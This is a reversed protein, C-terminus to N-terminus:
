SAEEIRVRMGPQLRENGRVVVLEGARLGDLVEYRAGVAEGVLLQRPEATGDIVVFVIVDDPRRIIADKHVSVIQRPAGVPIQLTVSQENALAAGSAAFQPVFRVARTRTLPNEDPVIARVSATFATGDDLRGALETGPTLGLLRNSPVDAEVELSQDAIMEVLADGERAYAGAESLRRSVVGDYPAKVQTYDLNIQALRLRARESTMSAEAERAGAEAIAVQQRVDDFRAQSFAASKKLGEIRQLEQQALVIQARRTDLEARALALGAAALAREAAMTSNDLVALVDGAGVRDGVQVRFEAIPGSIRAAVSGAQRAVLRGIVPVTQTLPESRVADIRVPTGDQQAQSPQALGLAALGGAMAMVLALAL